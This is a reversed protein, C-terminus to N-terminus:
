FYIVIFNIKKLFIIEHKKLVTLSESIYFSTHFNCPYTAHMYSRVTNMELLDDTKTTIGDDQIDM